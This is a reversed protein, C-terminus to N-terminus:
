IKRVVYELICDAQKAAAVNVRPSLAPKHCIDSKLDGIMVLNDKIRHVRIDDSSGVGGLGSVAVIFKKMQLLKELLMRKYEATDLCEAVIDCGGFIEDINNEDIKKNVAKLKLAPNIRLLNEKLAEVKIRGVQDLFYFQRDLNTADVTDFDAITLNAVGARVLNMACNSGLGGAGAIGIKAAQVKKFSEKGLKKAIDAHFIDITM